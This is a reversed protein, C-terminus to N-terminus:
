LWFDKASSFYFDPFLTDYQSMYLSLLLKLNTLFVIKQFSQLIKTMMLWFRKEKMLLLLLPAHSLVSVAVDVKLERDSVANETKDAYRKGISEFIGTINKSKVTNRKLFKSYYKRNHSM